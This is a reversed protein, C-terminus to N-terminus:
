EVPRTQKAKVGFCGYRGNKRPTRLCRDRERGIEDDFDAANQSGEIAGTGAASRDEAADRWIIRWTLHSEAPLLWYYRAHKKLREGTKM